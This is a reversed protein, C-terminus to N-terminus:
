ERGYQRRLERKRKEAEESVREHELRRRELVLELQIQGERADARNQEAENAWKRQYEVNIEEHTQGALRKATYDLNLQSGVMLLTLTMVGMIGLVWYVSGTGRSQPSNEVALADLDGRARTSAHTAHPESRNAATSRDANPGGDSHVHVAFAQHATSSRTESVQRSGARNSLAASPASALERTRDRLGPVGYATVRQGRANFIEWSLPSTETIRYGLERLVALCDEVRELRERRQKRVEERALEEAEASRRREEEVLQEVRLKIYLAKTKAEDGLADSFAQAFLGKRPSNADLEKAAIEYLREIDM